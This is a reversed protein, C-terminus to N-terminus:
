AGAQSLPLLCVSLLRASRNDMAGSMAARPRM